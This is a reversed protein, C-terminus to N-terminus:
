DQQQGRQGRDGKRLRLLQRQGFTLKGGLAGLDLLIQIVALRVDFEAAGITGLHHLREIAHRAHELAHFGHVLQAFILLDEDEFIRVWAASSLWSTQSRVRGVPLLRGTVRQSVTASRRRRRSFSWCFRCRAWRPMPGGFLQTSMRM